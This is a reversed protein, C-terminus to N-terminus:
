SENEDTKSFEASLQLTKLAEAEDLIQLAVGAHAIVYDGVKVDPLCAMSIERRAGGFSVIAMRDLQDDNEIISEVLGPIALCM